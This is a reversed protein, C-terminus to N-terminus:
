WPRFSSRAMSTSPKAAEKERGSRWGVSFTLSGSESCGSALRPKAPWGASIPLRGIRRATPCPLEFADVDLVDVVTKDKTQLVFGTLKAQFEIAPNIRIGVDGRESCAKAITALRREQDVPECRQRGLLAKALKQGKM